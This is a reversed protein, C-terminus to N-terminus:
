DPSEASRLNEVEARLQERQERTTRRFQLDLVVESQLETLEFRDHLARRATEPTDADTVMTIIEVAHESALLAAELMALRMQASGDVAGTM